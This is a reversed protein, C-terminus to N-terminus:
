NTFHILTLIGSIITFAFALFRWVNRETQLSNLRDATIEDIVPRGNEKEGVFPKVPREATFPENLRRILEDAERVADRAAGGSSAYHHNPKGLIAKLAEMAFQERNSLFESRDDPDTQYNEM